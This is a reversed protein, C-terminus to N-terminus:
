DDTTVLQELLMDIAQTKRADLHPIKKLIERQADTLIDGTILELVDTEFYEAVAPLKKLSPLHTGALWKSVTSQSVCLAEAMHEQTTGKKILRERFHLQMVVLHRAAAAWEVSPKSYNM